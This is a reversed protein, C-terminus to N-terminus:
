LPTLCALAGMWQGPKGRRRQKAHGTYRGKGSRKEEGESEQGNDVCVM